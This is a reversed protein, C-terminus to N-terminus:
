KSLNKLDWLDTAYKYLFDSFRYPSVIIEIGDLQPFQNESPWVYRVVPDDEDCIFFYFQVGQDSRYVFADKSLGGCGYFLLQQELHNRIGGDILDEYACSLGCTFQGASRGMLRMFRRYFLPLVEIGQKAGVSFIENETCGKFESANVLKKDILYKRILDIKDM